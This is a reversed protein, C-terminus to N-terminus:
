APASSPADFYPMGLGFTSCELSPLDEIRDRAVVNAMALAAAATPHHEGGFLKFICRADWYSGPKHRCIKAYSSYRKGDMSPWAYSAVYFGNTPGVIKEM